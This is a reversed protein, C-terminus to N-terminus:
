GNDKEENISKYCIKDRIVDFDLLNGNRSVIIKVQTGVEGRIEISNSIIVDGVRLGTKYAPYYEPAETIQGTIYDQTIGIGGYWSKCDEKKKAESISVDGQGSSPVQDEKDVVNVFITNEGNSGQKHKNQGEGNGGAHGLILFLLLSSHLLLSLAIFKKQM